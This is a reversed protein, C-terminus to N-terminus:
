RGRGDAQATFGDRPASAWWAASTAVKVRQRRKPPPKPLKTRRSPPVYELLPGEVQAPMARRIAALAEELVAYRDLLAARRAASADDHGITILYEQRVIALDSSLADLACAYGNM